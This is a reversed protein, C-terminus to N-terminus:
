PTCGGSYACNEDQFWISYKGQYGANGAEVFSIPITASDDFMTILNTTAAQSGPYFQKGDGDNGSSFDFFDFIYNSLAYLCSDADKPGCAYAPREIIWEESSGVLGPGTVYSLNFTGGWGQTIDEVFVNQASTGAAGFTIVYFDDGPNVPCPVYGAGYNCEIELTPYSPFWEVWGIYEGTQLSDNCDAIALSGGQIVDGATVGDIGAFTAQLFPGTIGNTCALFPPQAAPVNWVSEVFDFSRNKNWATLKNTNAVGSWNLSGLSTPLGEISAASVGNAPMLNRSSYPKAELKAAPRYKLAVMGRQWVAYGKPDAQEDPREPLGYTSLEENAATLPNFGKPRDAFISVGAINTLEKPATAFIARGAESQAAAVQPLSCLLLVAMGISMVAITRNKM